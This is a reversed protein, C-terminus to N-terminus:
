LTVPRGFAASAGVALAATWPRGATPAAASAPRAIWTTTVAAV